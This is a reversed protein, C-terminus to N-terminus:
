GFFGRLTGLGYSLHFRFFVYPLKFVIKKRFAKFFRISEIIAIFIYFFLPSLYLYPFKILSNTFSFLCILPISIIYLTFIFPIFHHLKMSNYNIFLTKANWKGNNFAYNFLKRFNHDVYYECSTKETIYLKYGEKILRDNLDNDQNRHLKVNYGGIDVIPKKKFVPYPISNAYGVKITRFSNGSVGFKSKLLWLVLFSKDDKNKSMTFVRGSCGVSGTKELEEICVRIYDSKYVTHAGLIAIYDGKSKKLGINFAFPTKKMDNYVYIVRKDYKALDKILSPTSDTSRGDIALIELKYDGVKQNLLSIIVDRIVKEENYIPMIISIFNNKM